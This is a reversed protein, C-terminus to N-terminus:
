CRSSGVSLLKIKRGAALDMSISLRQKGCGGQSDWLGQGKKGFKNLFFFFTKKVEKFMIEIKCLEQKSKVGREEGVKHRMM